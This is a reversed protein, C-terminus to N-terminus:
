RIRPARNLLVNARIAWGGSCVFASEFKALRWLLSTIRAVQALEENTGVSALHAGVPAHELPPLWANLEKLLAVKCENM